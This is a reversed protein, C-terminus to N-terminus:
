KVKFFTGLKQKLIEILNPDMFEYDDSINLCIVRQKIIYKRFKKQLKNKHVKEMVFLTDAWEVLSSTLPVEADNNLGASLVDFGEIDAFINEATPSRLKNQSCIFLVHKM